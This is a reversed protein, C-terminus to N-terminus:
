PAGFLLGRVLLGWLLLGGSFFGRSFLGGAFFAGAFFGGALFAGTLFAGAVFAVAVFAVAVFAGALFTGAVFAGALFAGALFAGTLVPAAVGDGLFAGALASTTLAPSSFHVLASSLSIRLCSLASRAWLRSIMSDCEESSVPSRRSEPSPAPCSWASTPAVVYSRSWSSVTSVM